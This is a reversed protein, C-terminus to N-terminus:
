GPRAGALRASVDGDTQRWVVEVPRVGAPVDFVVYGSLVDGRRLTISPLPLTGRVDPARNVLGVDAATAAPNAVYLRREGDRAAFDAPSVLLDDGSQSAITVVIAVRDLSASTTAPYMFPGSASLTFPEAGCGATLAAALAILLVRGLRRSVTM